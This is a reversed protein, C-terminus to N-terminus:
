QSDPRPNAFLHDFIPDTSLLAAHAASVAVDFAKELEASLGRCSAVVAQAWRVYEVVRPGDWGVPRSVAVAYVNSTKDAIKLLRAERSKGATTEIQLRKRVEKPLSKDDTVELVIGLVAPGFQKEIEAKTRAYEAPTPCTDELVDHLWAAALLQPSPEQLSQALLSAVDAPHNIYPEQRVGMRRQAVHRRAAYDAARSVLALSGRLTEDLPSM